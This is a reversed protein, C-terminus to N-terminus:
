LDLRARLGVSLPRLSQVGAPQGTLGHPRRGTMGARIEGLRRLTDEFAAAVLVAAVNKQPEGGNSLAERALGLLDGLVEGSAHMAVNGTLGAEVDIRLAALAGTVAPTVYHHLRFFWNGVKDKEAATMAQLLQSEQVSDPGHVARLVTLTGQYTEHIRAPHNGAAQIKELLDNIQKLITEQSVTPSM